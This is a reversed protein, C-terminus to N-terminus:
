SVKVEVKYKKFSCRFAKALRRKPWDLLGYLEEAGDRKIWMVLRKSWSGCWWVKRLGHLMVAFYALCVQAIPTRAHPLSLYADPIMALWSLVVM